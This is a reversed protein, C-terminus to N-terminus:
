THCQPPEMWKKVRDIVLLIVVFDAIAFPLVAAAPIWRNTWPIFIVLPAEAVGILVITLWFWARRRLPWRLGAAAFLMGTLYGAIGGNGPAGFHAFGLFVLFGAAAGLVVLGWHADRKQPKQERM